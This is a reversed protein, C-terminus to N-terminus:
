KSRKFHYDADYDNRSFSATVLDFGISQLYSIVEDKHPSGKNYEVNQLEVILHECNELVRQAGKLIDLESGQVDIKILDPPPFNYSDVVSDITMSIRSKRHSENFYTDAEPNIANNEKYYSSGGPDHDNQYFDVRRGDKDSLVGIHYEYGKDKYLNELTDVADFLIYNSDTWVKKAANTWHLVNAGIDYIVKPVVLQSDRMETLYRGMAEPMLWQWSELERMRDDVSKVLQVPAVQQNPQEVMFTWSGIHDCLISTDAWIEINRDRVQKCFYVDESITNAHDIASKYVFQPYPIASFVHSKILVCGFGCGDVPVLGQGQIEGYPVHTVGGWQNTRMIEICHKGPIRQIYVGTVMDKNHSVLKKLTDPAFAIDSDVAFLYDYGNNVTWNAILNRVQEVQYGWFYQFDVTCGDPTELNYISRFTEAEINRNTPIAVLIRNNKVAQSNKVAVKEKLTKVVDILSSRLIEKANITQEDSNVKYDNIPNIDNYNYVIQQLCKVKDPEASEILSYFVAGDGGAKYWESDANKFATDDVSNILYKKFTRFHTYPLIWNFHHQRYAKAQKIDDPYPQSILPINDVMSWCSGYTFETSDDYISNYYNFVTNDNILSDDGDLLMVIANDHLARINEVQNRVAGKNELNRIVTFKFRIEQPLSDLTQDVVQLTNDTSADDILIHRYNDYDQVAVSEICRSIYNACNYFPSVVVIEQETGSKYSELEVVNHYRRDFIKHIKHNIKTVSRYEDRSLYAGQKKYFHQKWQQAVTDWGAIDKVINCYYQKQQHLYKNAHAHITMNVFKDVQQDINIEPFLGNPEIAYDILYSAGELAIEELAGFRCTILPTNYLLSELTSIGFTEPFAAPYITYSANSLIEAIERQSIVGTFEIGLRANEQSASMERWKVEQEDPNSNKSFRYYGGIVKLRANPIHQKVRPWIREVLPVMGKTVSANYVFLDPDKAAIDVEKNYNLAGNRTIFLKNKLVEFNRRRGHHCNAIYTLHWDSLAFIDTIRNSVALDEIINDGLCFTDHMWLVRLKAKSLIRNYLDMSRFPHSRVDGLKDYDGPDTFPIVTRSSIVIDFIHDKSLESLPLYIVGDYVGPSAHDIDCNNFVVVNFGLSQLEKSILIVASESGGLGQKTLTSGDYPIGIIDIIAITKKM